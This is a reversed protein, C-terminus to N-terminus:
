PFIVKLSLINPSTFFYKYSFWNSYISKKHEPKSWFKNVFKPKLLFSLHINGKYSFWKTKRRGYGETQNDAILCLNNISTDSSIMKKLELNTSKVTKLKILNFKKKM